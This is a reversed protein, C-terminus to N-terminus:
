PRNEAQDLSDPVQCGQGTGADEKGAKDTDGERNVRMTGLGAMEPISPASDVADRTKQKGAPDPM